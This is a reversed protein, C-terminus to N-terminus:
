GRVSANLLSSNFRYSRFYKHSLYDFTDTAHMRVYADVEPNDMFPYFLKYSNASLGKGTFLWPDISYVVIRGQEQDKGFYQELMVHRDAVNVGERTYKAVRMGTREEFFRKDIALMLHSHGVMLVDAGAGLGYFRDLGKELIVSLGFDLSFLLLVFSVIRALNRGFRSESRIDDVLNNRM